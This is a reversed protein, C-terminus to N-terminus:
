VLECCAIRRREQREKLPPAIALEDFVRWNLGDAVENVDNQGTKRRIRRGLRPKHEFAVREVWAKLIV